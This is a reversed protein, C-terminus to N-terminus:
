QHQQYSPIYLTGALVILHVTDILSWGVTHSSQISLKVINFHGCDGSRSYLSNDDSMPYQTQYCMGLLM